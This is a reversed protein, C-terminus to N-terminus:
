EDEETNLTPVANIALNQMRVFKINDYEDDGKFHNIVNATKDGHEYYYIKISRDKDLQQYKSLFGFLTEIAPIEMEGFYFVTTFTDKKGVCESLIINSMMYEVSLVKTREIQTNDNIASPYVFSYSKAKKLEQLMSVLRVIRRNDLVMIRSYVGTRPASPITASELYNQFTDGLYEEDAGHVWCMIVGLNTESCDALSPFENQLDGSAKLANQKKHLTEIWGRVRSPSLSKKAYNKSELLVTQQITKGPNEYSLLCDIGHDEDDTGPLDMDKDGIHKWGLEEVLAVVNDNWFNGEKAQKEAM